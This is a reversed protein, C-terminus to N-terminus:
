PNILRLQMVRNGSGVYNCRPFNNGPHEKRSFFFMFQRELNRMTQDLSCHDQWFYEGAEPKRLILTVEWNGIVRTLTEYTRPVWGTGKVYEYTPETM